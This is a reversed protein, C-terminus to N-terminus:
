QAAPLEAAPHQPPLAEGNELRLSRAMQEAKQASEADNPGDQRFVFTAVYFVQGYPATMATLRMPIIEGQNGFLKGTIFAAPQGNVTYYDQSLIQIRASQSLSAMTERLDELPHEENVDIDSQRLLFAGLLSGDQINEPADQKLVNMDIGIKVDIDDWEMWDSFDMGDFVDLEFRYVPDTYVHEGYVPEPNQSYRAMMGRFPSVVKYVGWAMTAGVAVSFVVTCVGAWILPWKNGQKKIIMWIIKFVLFFVAYTVLIGALLLLILWIM